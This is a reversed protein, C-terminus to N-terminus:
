LVLTQAREVVEPYMTAQTMDIFHSKIKEVTEDVNDYTFYEHHMFYYSTLWKRVEISHQFFYQCLDLYQKAAYSNKEDETVIKPEEITVQEIPQIISVEETEVIPKVQEVIEVTKVEATKTDKITANNATVIITATLLSLTIFLLKKM